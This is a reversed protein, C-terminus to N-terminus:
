DHLIALCGTCHIYLTVVSLGLKKVSVNHSQYGSSQLASGLLEWEGNGGEAGKNLSSVLVDLAKKYTSM